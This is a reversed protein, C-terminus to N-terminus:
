FKATKRHSVANFRIYFESKGFVDSMNRGWGTVQVKKIDGLKLNPQPLCAPRVFSSLKVKKRLKILAIDNYISKRSDGQYDPHTIADSVNIVELNQNDYDISNDNDIVQSLKLAGM